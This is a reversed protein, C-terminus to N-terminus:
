PENVQGPRFDDSLPIELRAATENYDNSRLTFSRSDIGKNGLSVCIMALGLGAGETRDMDALLEAISTYQRANELKERVRAEEIPLIPFSNKVKVNLVTPNYYFTIMTWYKARVFVSRYRHAASEELVEKFRAMGKQYDATSQIDLGMELFIARKLNAKTANMVLEKTLTYVLSRLDSRGYYDLIRGAIRDLMGRGYESLLYTKLTLIRGQSIAEDLYEESPPESLLM